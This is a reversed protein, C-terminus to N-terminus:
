NSIHSYNFTSVKLKIECSKKSELNYINKDKIEEILNYSLSIKLIEICICLCIGGM